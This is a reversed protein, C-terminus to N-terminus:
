NNSCIGDDKFISLYFYSISFVASYVVSVLYKKYNSKGRSSDSLYSAFYQSAFTKIIKQNGPM